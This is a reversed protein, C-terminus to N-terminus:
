LKGEEAQINKYQTILKHTEEIKQKVPELEKNIDNINEKTAVLRKEHEGLMQEKTEVESVLVKQTEKQANLTKIDNQLEKYLKM